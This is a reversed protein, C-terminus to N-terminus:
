DGECAEQAEGDEEMKARIRKRERSMASDDVGLEEGIERQSM